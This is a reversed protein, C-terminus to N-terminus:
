SRSCSKRTDHSAGLFLLRTLELDAISETALSFRRRLAWHAHAAVCLHVLRGGPIAARPNANEPSTPHGCRVRAAHNQPAKPEFSGASGRVSQGSTGSKIPAAPPIQVGSGRM